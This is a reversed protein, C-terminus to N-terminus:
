HDNLVQCAESDLLDRFFSKSCYWGKNNNTGLVLVDLEVIPIAASVM